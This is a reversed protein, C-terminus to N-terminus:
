NFCRASFNIYKKTNINKDAEERRKNFSDLDRKNKEMQEQTLNDKRTERKEDDFKKRAKYAEDNQKRGRKISSRHKKYFDQYKKDEESGSHKFMSKILLDDHKKIM